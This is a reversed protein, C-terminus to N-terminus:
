IQGEVGIFFRNIRYEFGGSNAPSTDRTRYLYGIRVRMYRNMLYLAEIGGRFLDDDRDIGEFDENSVGLDLSVILNRLLEHNVEFGFETALIGAAGVITTGNIRRDASLSMTTLGTINWTIEAGFIAGDVKAFRPDDYDRSVYGLYAEGFTQGSLDIDTGFVLDFGDSSREFGNRDIRQDYDVETLSLQAFPNLTPATKHGVRLTLDSRDRDRDANDITGVIARTDDYSLNRQSVEFRGTFQGFPQGFGIRLEDTTYTTPEIGQRNDPSTRPEHLDSHRLYGTLEGRGIDVTGDAWIRWDDYNESDVDIYRGATWDFGLELENRSWNSKLILEPEVLFILDDVEFDDTAFINSDALFGVGIRPYLRFAGLPSGQPDLEPRARELVTEGARTDQAPAPATQLALLAAAVGLVGCRARRGSLRIGTDPISTM